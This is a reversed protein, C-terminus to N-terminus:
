SGNNVEKSINDPTEGTIEIGIEDLIAVLHVDMLEGSESMECLFETAKGVWEGSVTKSKYEELATRITRLNKVADGFDLVGVMHKAEPKKGNITAEYIGIRKGVYELAERIDNATPKTM